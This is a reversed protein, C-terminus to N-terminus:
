PSAGRRRPRRSWPWRHPPRAPPPPRGTARAPNHRRPRPRSPPRPLLRRAAGSGSGLDIRRRRPRLPARPHCTSGARRAPGPARGGGVAEDGPPVVRGLGEREVLDALADGCTCVLPLGTWFCDLLRSRFAYRTEVSDPHLSVALDAELLYAAREAYPVWDRFFVHREALGLAVALERTRDPMAMPPLATNPHRTGLFVLRVDPREAAVRAMARVLTLPDFWDWLGGNWLIVRDTAAIGPQVGKLAPGSTRPPDPPLGYPVVDILARLTPDADYTAPNLRNNAALMGLWYDRQRESACLFFDGAQLQDNSCPWTSATSRRASPCATAPSSRWIRSSSPDYLDVVLPKGLARLRRRRQLLFGQVLRGRKGPPGPCSASRATGHCSVVRFGEGTPPDANPAALVVPLGARALARAMEWRAGGAWGDDRGRSRRLGLLIPAAVHRRSPSALPRPRAGRRGRPGDGLPLPSADFSVRGRGDALPLSNRRPSPVTSGASREWPSLSYCLSRGGHPWACRLRAAARRERGRPLPAPPSPARSAHGEDLRRCRGPHRVPPGPRLHAVLREQTELYRPDVHNPMFPEGFLPLIAADPAAAPRSCAARAAGVGRRAEAGGRRAGPLLEARLRPLTESPGGGDQGLVYPATEVSGSM